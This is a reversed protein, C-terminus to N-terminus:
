GELLKVYDGKAEEERLRYGLVLQWLALQQLASGPLEMEMESRENDSLNKRKPDASSSDNSGELVFEVLKKMTDVIEPKIGETLSQVDGQRSAIYGAIDVVDNKNNNDSGIGAQNQLPDGSLIPDKGDSEEASTGYKERRLALKLQQAEEKLSEMYEKADVKVIKGNDMEIEITGSINEVLSDDENEEHDEDDTDNHDEMSALLLNAFEDKASNNIVNNNAALGKKFEEWSIKGDENKDFFDLFATIEYIPVDSDKKSKNGDNDDDDDGSGSSSKSAYVNTFLTRIESIEIYGSNNLDLKNFADEYDNITLKKGNLNMIDKLAIVYEANRFMYGTMQLQFCLSSIKDGSAKVVMEVGMNPNSLGGLLSNIAGSMAQVVYPNANSVFKGICQNPTESSMMRFLTQSPDQSVGNDIDNMRNRLLDLEGGWDTNTTLAGGSGAGGDVSGSSTTTLASSIRLISHLPLRNTSASSTRGSATFSSSQQQERIITNSCYSPRHHPIIVFADVRITMMFVSVAAVALLLTGTGTGTAISSATATHATTM